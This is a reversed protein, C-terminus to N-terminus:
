GRRRALGLLAAGLLALWAGPAGGGSSCSAGGGTVVLRAPAVCAGAVCLDGGGCGADDLCPLPAPVEVETLYRSTAGGGAVECTFADLGTFDPAPLYGAEAGDLAAHGHRAAVAVRTAFPDGDADYGALFPALRRPSTIARRRWAASPGWTAPGPAALAAPLHAPGADFLADGVGEDMRWLALLGPADGQVPQRASAALEAATRATSWLRLEDVAGAFRDTAGDGLPAGGIM